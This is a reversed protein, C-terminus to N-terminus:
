RLIEEAKSCYPLSFGLGAALSAAPGGQHREQMDDGGSDMGAARRLVPGQAGADTGGEGKESGERTGKQQKHPNVLKHSLSSGPQRLRPAVGKRRGQYTREYEREGVRARLTQDAKALEGPRGGGRGFQRDLSAM